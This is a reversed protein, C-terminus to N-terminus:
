PNASTGISTVLLWLSESDMRTETLEHLYGVEQNVVHIPNVADLSHSDLSLYLM